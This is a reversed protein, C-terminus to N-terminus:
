CWFGYIIKNLWATFIFNSMFLIVIFIMASYKLLFNNEIINNIRIKEALKKFILKYVFYGIAAGLTNTILDNIDTARWNLLQSIEITLSLLFGFILTSRFKDFSKFLSPLIIGLPIFMIINAIFGFMENSVNNFPILNIAMDAYPGRMVDGLTAVGTVNFVLALYLAFVYLGLIFLKSYKIEKKKFYRVLFINIALVVLLLIIITM